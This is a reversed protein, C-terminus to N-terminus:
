SVVAASNNLGPGFRLTENNWGVVDDMFGSDDNLLFIEQTDTGFSLVSRGDRRFIYHVQVPPRTVTPKVALLSEWPGPYGHDRVYELAITMAYDFQEWDIPEVPTALRGDKEPQDFVVPLDCCAHITVALGDSDRLTLDYHSYSAEDYIPGDVYRGNAFQLEARPYVLRTRVIGYKVAQRFDSTFLPNHSSPPSITTNQPSLSGHSNLLALSLSTFLLSSLVSSIFHYM